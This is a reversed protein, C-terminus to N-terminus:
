IGRGNKSKGIHSSMTYRKINPLHLAKLAEFVHRARGAVGEPSLRRDPNSEIGAAIVAEAQLDDTM